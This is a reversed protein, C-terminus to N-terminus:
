FPKKLWLLIDQLAKGLEDLYDDSFFIKLRDDPLDNARWARQVFAGQFAMSNCLCALRKVKQGTKHLDLFRDIHKRDGAQMELLNSFHLYYARKGMLQEIEFNAAAIAHKNIFGEWTTYLIGNHNDWTVKYRADFGRTHRTDLPSPKRLSEYPDSM